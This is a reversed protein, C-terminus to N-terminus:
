ASEQTRGVVRRQQWGSEDCQVLGELELAPLLARVRPVPVGSETAIQEASKGQRRQLAEHVRLADQELGDTRRKPWLREATATGLKGVIDIVDDVSAVLTAASNRILDHCGASTASSIPGPVAMVLKGLAMATNATNRAGSRRGAEVVVTGETLAAILRNRVLFRHRAPRTGPPYESVVLGRQEAIKGLLITHGSPYGADLSCGLLAVTVGGAALAGRHAAGDIGFAAGSIVSLERRALGFAFEGAVNEGYGSAARSGVIAVAAEAAKDLRAAGRAWLALPPAGSQLGRRGAVDLCLLPWAPWEDDEPIILRAGDREGAELDSEARDNDRRAATEDAVSQPCKGARVAKAAAIPGVEAAFAALARAPPEAVRLLYARALREETVVM